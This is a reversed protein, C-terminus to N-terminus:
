GFFRRIEPDFTWKRSRNGDLKPQPQQMPRVKEAAAVPWKRELFPKEAGFAL